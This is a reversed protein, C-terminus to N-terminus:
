GLVTSYFLRGFNLVPNTFIWLTAFPEFYPNIQLFMGFTLRLEDSNSTDIDLVMFIGLFTSRYQRYRTIASLDGLNAIM